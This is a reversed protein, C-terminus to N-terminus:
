ENRIAFKEADVYPKGNWDRFLWPVVEELTKIRPNPMELPGTSATPPFKRELLARRDRPIFVWPSVEWDAQLGCDHVLAAKIGTWHTRWSELRKMLASLSKSYSIECLYVHPKKPQDGKDQSMGNSRGEVFEVVVADCFWHEGKKPVDGPALQILCETNVFRTRTARLYDIVVGQYYDM